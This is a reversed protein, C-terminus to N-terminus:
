KNTEWPPIFSPPDVHLNRFARRGNRFKCTSGRDKMGGHSVFLYFEIGLSIHMTGTIVSLITKCDVPHKHYTSNFSSGRTVMIGSLTNSEAGNILLHYVYMYSLKSKTMFHGNNYFFFEKHNSSLLYKQKIFLWLYKLWTCICTHSPISKYARSQLSCKM